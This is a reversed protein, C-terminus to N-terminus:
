AFWFISFRLSSPLSPLLSLQLFTWYLPRYTPYGVLNRMKRTSASIYLGASASSVARM